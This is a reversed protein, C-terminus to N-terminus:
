GGLINCVVVRPQGPTAAFGLATVTSHKRALWFVQEALPRTAM